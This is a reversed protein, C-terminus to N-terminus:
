EPVEALGVLVGETDADGIFAATRTALRQPDAPVRVVIGASLQALTVATSRISM